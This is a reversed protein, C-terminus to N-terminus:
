LGCSVIIKWIYACVINIDTNYQIYLRDDYHVYSSSSDYHIIIISFILLPKGFQMNNKNQVTKSSSTQSPMATRDVCM